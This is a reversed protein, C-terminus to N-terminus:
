ASNDSVTKVNETSWWTTEEYGYGCATNIIVYLKVKMYPMPNNKIYPLIAKSGPYLKGELSKIKEKDVWSTKKVM